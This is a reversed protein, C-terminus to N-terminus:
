LDAREVESLRHSRHVRQVEAVTTVGARVLRRGDEEISRFGSARALEALRHLDVGERLVRAMSDDPLFLESVAARGAYGTRGCRACGRGSRPRGVDSGLWAAEDPALEHEGGCSTCITRVLRQALVGILADEVLFPDVGLDILRPVAGLASNTHLTSLVLHGTMSARIAMAATEPDRIEGVLVVDPDQRLLARLGAHFTYGISPDVQSQRLLPLRYEVPDEVTCVNRRMADIRALMAYLTTTKGSGTPGTVLFLGHPRQVVHDLVSQRGPALGLEGLDLRRQGQDLLRLVVNEGDTCPMVAVRMDVHRDDLELRLRGDQPRRRESIDLRSLVKIRSVVAETAARPLSEGPSLVGDVRYRVRTVHEEPEIHIDTAGRHVGETLLADTLREAPWDDHEDLERLIRDVRDADDPLHLRLLAELENPTTVALQLPYPCHTRVAAVRDPDDPHVMAVRLVGDELGVPFAGTRRVFARGFAATLEPDPEIDRALLFPIDLDAALIEAVDDPRVFGLGVLIEGLPRYARRQENLAAALEAESLLGRARLRDGLRETSQVNM